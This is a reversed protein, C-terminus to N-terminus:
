RVSTNSSVGFVDGALVFARAQSPTLVENAHALYVDNAEPGVQQKDDIKFIDAIQVSNPGSSTVNWYFNLWDVETSFLGNACNRNRWLTATKASISIPPKQRRYSM